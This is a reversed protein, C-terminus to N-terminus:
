FLRRVKITGEITQIKDLALESAGANVDIVVYGINDFTQLYQGSINIDNEALIANIANMIGPKNQHVHLIRHQDPHAPLTVEPFNVASITTGNDSYKGLKEAVELGINAQAEITSGGVHPTLIINDFERLPTVFEESNSRPEVPFVDVAAGLLKKSRVAEALADIDVVTGRSANMMISGQKMQAFQEPGMMWKTTATEPVHLSIVDSMNLLEEMSAVQIANGLPLKTVVDYFFVKMGMSEAIVSLQTGISGYGVIGLIKGRIEFSNVASKMWEGRHCQANKEPVGRMLLIAQAISLEAVSRTNSFPANFVCIGRETAAKLDVQNTGICFCGVAILKEAADFVDATLQTRSRIGVFHADKIRQKLQDVASQHVGELLLFKIKSKDLSTQSM